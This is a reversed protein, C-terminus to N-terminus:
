IISFFSIVGVSNTCVRPGFGIGVFNHIKMVDYVSAVPNKPFDRPIWLLSCRWRVNEFRTRFPFNQSATLNKQACSFTPTKFGSLISSSLFPIIFSVPADTRDPFCGRSFLREQEVNSVYSSVGIKIGTPM